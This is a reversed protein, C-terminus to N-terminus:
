LAMSGLQRSIKSTGFVRIKYMILRDPVITAAPPVNVPFSFRHDIWCFIIMCQFQVFNELPEAGEGSALHATLAQERGLRLAVVALDAPLHLAGVGGIREAHPVARRGDVIHLVAGSREFPRLHAGAKRQALQQGDRPHEIVHAGQLGVALAALLLVGRKVFEEPRQPFVFVELIHDARGDDRLLLEGVIGAALQHVDAALDARRLGRHTLLQVPHDARRM